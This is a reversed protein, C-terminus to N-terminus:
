RTMQFRGLVFTQSAANFVRSFYMSATSFINISLCFDDFRQM